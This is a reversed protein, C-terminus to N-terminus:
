PSPCVSLWGLPVVELVLSGVEALPLLPLLSGPVVELVLSGVEALPLLSLLSWYSSPPMLGTSMHDLLCFSVPILVTCTTSTQYPAQHYRPHLLDKTPYRHCWIGVQVKCRSRALNDIKSLTDTAGPVYRYRTGQVLCTILRQCPIQTVLYRCTYRTGPIFCTM